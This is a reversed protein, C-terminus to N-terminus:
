LSSKGEWLGGCGLLIKYLLHSLSQSSLFLFLDMFHYIFISSSIATPRNPPYTQIEESIPSIKRFRDLGEETGLASSCWCIKKSDEEEKDGTLVCISGCLWGAVWGDVQICVYRSVWGGVHVCM